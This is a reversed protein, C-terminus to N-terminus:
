ECCSRPRESLAEEPQYWQFFLHGAFAGAVCSICMYGNYIMFLMM